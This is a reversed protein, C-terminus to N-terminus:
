LASDSWHSSCSSEEIWIILKQSGRLDKMKSGEVKRQSSLWSSGRHLKFGVFHMNAVRFLFGLIRGLVSSIQNNIWWM